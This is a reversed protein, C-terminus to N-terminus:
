RSGMDMTLAVVDLGISHCRGLIETVCRGVDVGIFSNGTYHYGVVQKRRSSVGGLMFVLAHTAISKAPAGPVQLTTYGCVSGTSNDYELKPVISM